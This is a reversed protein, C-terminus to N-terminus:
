IAASFHSVIKLEGDDEKYIFQYNANIMKNDPFTFAYTGSEFYMSDIKKIESKIFTVRPKMQLLNLFYFKIGDRNYTVKKALTGKFTHNVHYCDLINYMNGTNLADLWKKRARLVVNM